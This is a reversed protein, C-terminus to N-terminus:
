KQLEGFLQSEHGAVIESSVVELGFRNLATTTESLDRVGTAISEITSTRQNTLAERVDVVGAVSRVESSLRERDDPDTTAVSIARCPDDRERLRPTTSVWSDRREEVSAIRNRVTTASVDVDAAIEQATM